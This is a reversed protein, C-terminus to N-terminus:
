AVWRYVPIEDDSRELVGSEVLADLQATAARFVNGGPLYRPWAAYIRAAVDPLPLRKERRLCEVLFGHLESVNRRSEAILQAARHATCINNHSTGVIEAGAREFYDLSNRYAEVSTYGPYFDPRRLLPTGVAQLADGTFLVKGAEHFVAIHGDTHAPVHEIHLRHGAGLDVVEDHTLFDDVPVVEGCLDRIRDAYAESAVYAPALSGTGERLYREVDGIWGADAEHSMVQVGPNHRKIVGNGGFHDHHGHTNIVIDINEIALGLEALGSALQDDPTSAVGSDILAVGDGLVVYVHNPVDEFRADIAYVGDALREIM